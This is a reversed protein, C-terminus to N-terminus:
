AGREVGLADNANGQEIEDGVVRLVRHFAKVEWLYNVGFIVAMLLFAPWPFGILTFGVVFITYLSWHLRGVMALAGEDPKLLLRGLRCPANFTQATFAVEHRALARYQAKYLAGTRLAPTPIHDPMGALLRRARLVVPGGRFLDPSWRHLALMDRALQLALALLALGIVSERWTV